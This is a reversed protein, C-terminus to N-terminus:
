LFKYGDEEKVEEHEHVAGNESELGTWGQIRMDLAPGSAGRIANKVKRWLGMSRSPSSGISNNLPSFPAPAANGYRPPLPLPREHQRAMSAYRDSYAPRTAVTRPTPYVLYKPQLSSYDPCPGTAGQPSSTPTKGGSAVMAPSPGSHESFSMNSAPSRVVEANQERQAGNQGRTAAEIVTCVAVDLPVGMVEEIRAIVESEIRPSLHKEIEDVLMTHAENLQLTNMLKDFNARLNHYHEAAGLPDQDELYEKYILYVARFDEIAKTWEIDMSQRGADAVDKSSSGPTELPEKDKKGGGDGYGKGRHKSNDGVGGGHHENDTSTTRFSSMRGFAKDNLEEAKWLRAVSQDFEAQAAEKAQRCERHVTEMAEIAASVAEHVAQEARGWNVADQGLSITM